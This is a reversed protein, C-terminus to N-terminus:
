RDAGRRPTPFRRAARGAAAPQRCPRRSVTPPWRSPDAHPLSERNDTAAKDIFQDARALAPRRLEHYMAAYESVFKPLWLPPLLCVISTGSKSKFNRFTRAA